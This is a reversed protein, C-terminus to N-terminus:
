RKKKGRRFERWANERIKESEKHGLVSELHEVEAMSHSTSGALGARSIESLRKAAEEHQPHKTTAYPTRGPKYILPRLRKMEQAMRQLGEWM